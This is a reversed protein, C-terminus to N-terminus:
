TVYSLNMPLAIDDVMQFDERLLKVVSELSLYFDRTSKRTRNDKEQKAGVNNSPLFMPWIIVIPIKKVGNKASAWPIHNTFIYIIELIIIDRLWVILIVQFFVM